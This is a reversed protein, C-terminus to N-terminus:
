ETKRRLLRALQGVNDIEITKGTRGYLFDINAALRGTAGDNPQKL